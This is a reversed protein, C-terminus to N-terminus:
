AEVLKSEHLRHVACCRVNSALVQCVRRGQQEAAAHHQPVQLEIINGVVNLLCCQLDNCTLGECRVTLWLDAAVWEQMSSAKPNVSDIRSGFGVM